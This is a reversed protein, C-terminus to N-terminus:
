LENVVQGYTNADYCTIQAVDAIKKFFIFLYILM